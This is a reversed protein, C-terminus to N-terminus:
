SKIEKEIGSAIAKFSLDNTFKRLVRETAATKEISGLRALVAYLEEASGPAFLFGCQGNDTMKRFSPINTVIPICGCAMAEFLAFGMSERHSGLLFFDAAQYYKELDAHPLTGLLIVQETLQHDIIWQKVEKYLEASNYLLYLCSAPSQVAYRGFAKLITLPDKNENLGGCWLFLTEGCFGIEKKSEAKDKYRFFTSGAWQEKLKNKSSFVKKDLWIDAQELSAFFYADICRAAIRQLLIKPFRLPQEAHNLVLIKTKPGVFLRLLILQLTFLFGHVLVADPRYQKLAYFLKWRIGWKRNKGKIFEYRVGQKEFSANIGCYRIVRKEMAPDLYDLYLLSQLQSRIIEDPDTRSELSYLTLDIYKLSNM